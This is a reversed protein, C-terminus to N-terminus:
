AGVSGGCCPKSILCQAHGSARAQLLPRGYGCRKIKRAPHSTLNKFSPPLGPSTASGTQTAQSPLHAPTPKKHRAPTTDTPGCTHRQRRWFMDPLHLIPIVYKWEWIRVENDSGGTVFRRQVGLEPKSSVLSGAAVAPAWSVANVGSGHAQFMMHTWQGEQFELVSVQGDSSACALLCGAEHPAWSVINVSATHLTFEFM